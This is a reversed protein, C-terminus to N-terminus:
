VFYLFIICVILKNIILEVIISLPVRRIPVNSCPFKGSNLVACCSLLSILILVVGLVVTSMALWATNVNSFFDGGIKLRMFIGAVLLGSGISIDLM